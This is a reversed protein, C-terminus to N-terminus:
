EATRRKRLIWVFLLAAGAIIPTSVAKVLVPDYSLSFVVTIEEIMYAMLSVTYYTFIAVSLMEAAAQLRLQLHFRSNMAKLLQQSQQEHRVDIRTRLLQSTQSIRQSLQNLWNSVSECTMRAPELRRNLIGSFSPLLDVPQEHLETLRQSMLDFYARSASLKRYNSAVMNEVNAALSTLDELLEEDNNGGGKAIAHTLETLRADSAPLERLLARASPLVLMALMRYSEMEILRLVLRGNQTPLPAKSFLLMRLMGDDRIKFDTIALGGSRGFKSVTLFDCNFSDGHVNILDRHDTTEPCPLIPMDMSVLLKGPLGALWSQPLAQMPNLAFPTEMQESSIPFVFKYGTFEQHRELKFRFSGFDHRIRSHDKDLADGFHEFLQGLHADEEAREDSTVLMAIYIVRAPPTLPEYPHQHLEDNLANRQEHPTPMASNM